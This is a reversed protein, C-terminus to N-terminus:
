PRSVESIKNNDNNSSKYPTESVVGNDDLDKKAEMEGGADTEIPYIRDAM